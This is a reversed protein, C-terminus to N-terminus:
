EIKVKVKYVANYGYGKRNWYAKDPQIRGATDEGKCLITYEGTDNVEWVYSWPVFAYKSLAQHLTAKNWSQGDDTSIYVNKIRGLGTWAIGSICHTGKSSTSYDLPKQIITNVNMSTVFSANEDNYKNPYYVYDETQYPGQFSHNILTISKLWKVSAMGYWHPVILRLPAGQKYPIPTGNYFLAVITDEHLAKSLPLSRCYPLNQKNKEKGNDHAEFVVEKASSRIGTIKLMNNLSIGTWAGQSIAGAEWQEGYTKPSFFSRKNGACELVNKVTRLPFHILDNIHFTSVSGVEGKISLIYNDEKLPPYNFHNRIYFYDPPTPTFHELFHIPTEQNEPSLSRTILYPKNLHSM